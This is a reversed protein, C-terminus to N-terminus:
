GEDAYLAAWDTGDDLGSSSGLEALALEEASPPVARYGAIDRRLREVRILRDLAVDIVASTSEAGVLARALEAKDRDLVITAKARAVSM